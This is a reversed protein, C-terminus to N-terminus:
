FMPFCWCFGMNCVVGHLISFTSITVFASSQWRLGEEERKCVNGRADDAIARIHLVCERGYKNVRHTGIM